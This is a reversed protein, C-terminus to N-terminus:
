ERSEVAKELEDYISSEIKGKFTRELRKAKRAKKLCEPNKCIYAGRGEKKDDGGLVKISKNQESKPSRVIVIFEDKPKRAGCGICKRVPINKQKQIM